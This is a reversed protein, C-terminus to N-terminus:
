YMVPKGNYMFISDRDFDTLVSSLFDTVLSDAKERKMVTSTERMPEAQSHLLAMFQGEGRALHPYFRRCEKINACRCGDFFVGDATVKRVTDKVPVLEFEPHRQLFADVTLENEQLSFTCTAYLIYGGRKVTRAAHDLIVAQRDACRNVNEESWEDIATEDKRFMGEGSCPADVTVLDFTNGYLDALKATDLCCTIVNQLGLREINGSLVRCRSPIVENSMLVGGSGLKNKLQTSKGGPAACMDLIKWDPQIDLCEVPAMAAPEQVYIMGAHHYPHSGVRDFDLYFGNEVYPISERGFPNIKDFDEPAIKDTNVRFGRVPPESLAALYDGFSNGLLERMEAAFREPIPKM